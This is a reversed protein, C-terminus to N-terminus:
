VPHDGVMWGALPAGCRRATEHFIEPGPKAVGLERSVTCADIVDSLGARAIKARQTAGGNTVVGIRWGDRRLAGLVEADPLFRAVYEREYADVLGTVSTAVGFRRRFEAFFNERSTKGDRDHQVLWEPAGGGLGKEASFWVAWEHFGRARDILTNDLDFLVLPVM